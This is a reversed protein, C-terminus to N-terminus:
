VTSVFLFLSLLKKTFKSMGSSSFIETKLKHTHREREGCQENVADVGSNRAQDSTLHAAVRRAATRAM